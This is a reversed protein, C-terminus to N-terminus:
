HNELAKVCVKLGLDRKSKMSTFHSDYSSQTVASHAAVEVHHKGCKWCLQLSKLTGQCTVRGFCKGPFHNEASFGKLPMRLKLDNKATEFTLM